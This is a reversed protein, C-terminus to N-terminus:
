RPCQRGGRKRLWRQALADAREYDAVRNCELLRRLALSHGPHRLWVLGAWLRLRVAEHSLGLAKALQRLSLAPEAALGYYAIVVQRLDVPLCGVLRRLASYTEARQQAEDPEAQLYVPPDDHFVAPRPDAPKSQRVARWIAREIAVWAYTSFAFGRQPDYGQLAHWLGIRGVQLREEYSLSGGWQRRLVVHVLGDHRVMLVDLPSGSLRSSPLRRPFQGPSSQGLM